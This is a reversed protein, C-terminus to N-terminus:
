LWPMELIVKMKGLNYVDIRVREIHEKFYLDVKVEHLIAGRSNGIGNVNKVLIPKKLKILKFGKRQTYKKSM